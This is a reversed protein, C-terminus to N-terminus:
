DLFIGEARLANAVHANADPDVTLSRQKYEELVYKEAGKNLEDATSERYRYEAATRKEPVGLGAHIMLTRIGAKTHILTKDWTGADIGEFYKANLKAFDPGNPDIGVERLTSDVLQQARQDRDRMRREDQLIGLLEERTLPKEKPTKQDRNPAPDDQRDGGSNIADQEWKKRAETVARRAQREALERISQPLDEIREYQVDDGNLEDRLNRSDATQDATGVKTEKEDM